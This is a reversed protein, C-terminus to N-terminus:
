KRQVKESIYLDTSIISFLRNIIFFFWQFSDVTQTPNTSRITRYSPQQSARM